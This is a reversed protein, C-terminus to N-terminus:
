GVIRAGPDLARGARAYCAGGAYARCCRAQHVLDLHFARSSWTLDYQASKGILRPHLALRVYRKTFRSTELVRAPRTQGSWRKQRHIRRALPASHRRCQNGFHASFNHQRGCAEIRPHGAERLRQSLNM